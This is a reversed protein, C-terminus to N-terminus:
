KSLKGDTRSADTFFGELRVNDLLAAFRREREQQLEVSEQPAFEALLPPALLPPASSLISALTILTAHLLM